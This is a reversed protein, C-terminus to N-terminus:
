AKKHRTKLITLQRAITTDLQRGPLSLKLGGIVSEDVVTELSASKAGTQAAAFSEISRRTAASLDHAATITGTVHGQAALQAAIDRLLVDLENTRRSEILYAALQTAIKKQSVGDILQRACHTAIARRSLKQAM